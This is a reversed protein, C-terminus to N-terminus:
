HPRPSGSARSNGFLPPLVIHIIFFFLLLVVFFLLVVFIVFLFSLHFTSHLGRGIVHQSVGGCALQTLPLVLILLHPLGALNGLPVVNLVCCCLLLVFDAVVVVDFTM